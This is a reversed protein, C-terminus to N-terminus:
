QKISQLTFPPTEIINSKHLARDLIYLRLKIVKISFFVNFGVSKMAYRIKGEQATAQSLDKSLIPFRGNFGNVQCNPYIFENKWDYLLFTDKQNIRQQIYFDVFFNYHDPNLEFYLTDVAKGSTPDNIVDWNTCNYPTVFDPLTDYRPDTRKSAYNLFKGDPFRYYYKDNYPPLTESDDLGLDGDGDKFNVTLILTDAKAPDSVDRFIINNYEIEPVNPFEPAKFCSDLAVAIVLVVVLNRIVRM